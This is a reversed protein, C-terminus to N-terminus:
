VAALSKMYVDVFLNLAETSQTMRARMVAGEWGLWFYHAYAHCDIAQAIEGSQQALLLCQAVKESWGSFINNLLERYNPPLVGLEQGFSGVLCGRTFRHRAMGRAADMVFNRIRMLPAASEDLLWRDLKRQFYDDYTALVAVGFADKNRFHHYFSGKPVGARQLIADLGTAAFGRETLLEMGCRILVDRTSVYPLGHGQSAAPIREGASRKIGM